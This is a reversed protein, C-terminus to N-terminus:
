GAQFVYALFLYYAPGAFLLSDIRDLMGGHGPILGSTDKVGASRKLLSEFLDGVIGFAVLVLGAAALAAPSAGPLWWQGLLPAVVAGAVFGSAAGEVTKKPSVAPALPRRGFVRGGYLQATDSVVVVGVLLLLAAAGHQARVSALAGLPLGLYLVPLLAVGVRRLVDEDPRSSGLLASGVAVFAALLPVEPPIGPWALGVCASLAAVLMLARPLPRGVREALAVYEAHAIALVVAVLLLTAWAPGLWVVGVVLALLVLGSLIRTVLRCGRGIPQRALTAMPWRGDGM